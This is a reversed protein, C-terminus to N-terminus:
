RKKKKESNPPHSAPTSDRRPFLANITTFMLEEQRNPCIKARQKAWLKKLTQLKVTLRLAGMLMVAAATVRKRHSCFGDKAPQPLPSSCVALQQNVRQHSM